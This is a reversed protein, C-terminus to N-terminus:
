GAMWKQSWRYRLLKPPVYRRSSIELTKFAAITVETITCVDDYMENRIVIKPNM